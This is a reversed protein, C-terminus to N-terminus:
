FFQRDYLAKILCGAFIIQLLGIGDIEPMIMDTIVLDINNNKLQALAEDANHATYVIYGHRSLMAQGVQIVVETDDILLISENGDYNVIIEAQKEEELNESPIPFYM